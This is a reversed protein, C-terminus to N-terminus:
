KREKPALYPLGLFKIIDEESRFSPPVPVDEKVAKMEHENLTYGMELAKKRVMINYKESGTFYLLALPYEKPTTLLLDLRRAKSSDGVKTIAMCKKPGNALVEVIYGSSQLDKVFTKFLKQAEADTVNGDYGVLVDIDGSDEKERRFSGVVDMHLKSPLRKKMVAQHEKVETRPIRELLDEYFSLGVKQKENLLKPDEKVAKRLDSITKIGSSALAKAKVPGVGYIQLFENTAGVKKDAKVREAAQLSGTELIEEIKKQIKEGIGSINRVDDMTHIPAERSKLQQIVKGYARAKFINKDQYEKRQLVDLADIINLRRDMM